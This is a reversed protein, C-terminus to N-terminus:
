WGPSAGTESGFLDPLGPLSAKIPPRRDPKLPRGTIRGEELALGQSPEAHRESVVNQELIFELDRKIFVVM